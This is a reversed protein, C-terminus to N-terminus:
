CFSPSACIRRSRTGSVLAGCHYVVEIVECLEKFREASLGFKRTGLDGVVPVIREEDEKTFPLKTDKM